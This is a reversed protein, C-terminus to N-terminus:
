VPELRFRVYNSVCHIYIYIISPNSSVNYSMSTHNRQYGQLSDNCVAAKCSINRSFILCVDIEKSPYSLKLRDCGGSKSMGWCCRIMISPEELKTKYLGWIPYEMGCHQLRTRGSELPTHIIGWTQKDIDHKRKFNKGLPDNKIPSNGM